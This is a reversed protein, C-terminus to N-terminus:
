RSEDFRGVVEFALTHQGVRAGDDNVRGPELFEGDLFAMREDGGAGTEEKVHALAVAEEVQGARLDHLGRGNIFVRDEGEVVGMVIM